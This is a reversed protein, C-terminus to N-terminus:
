TQRTRVVPANRFIDLGGELALIACARLRSICRRVRLKLLTAQSPMLLLLSGGVNREAPDPTGAAEARMTELRLGHACALGVALWPWAYTIAM